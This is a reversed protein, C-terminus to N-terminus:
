RRNPYGSTANLRHITVGSTEWFLDPSGAVAQRIQEASTKLSKAAAAVTVYIEPPQKAAAESFLQRIGPAHRLQALCWQCDLKATFPGMPDDPKLGMGCQTTVRQEYHRVQGITGDSVLHRTGSHSVITPKGEFEDV